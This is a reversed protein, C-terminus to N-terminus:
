AKIKDSKSTSTNDEPLSSFIYYGVIGFLLINYITAGYFKFNIWLDMDGTRIFYLNLFGLLILGLAMFYNARKWVADEVKKMQPGALSLMSKLIDKKGVIRAIVLILGFLWYVVSFKWQLFLPDRFFLTMSGLPILLCWSGFLFDPIKGNVIKEFVVQLTVFLMIVTTLALFDRTPYWTVAMVVLLTLPNNLIKLLSTM